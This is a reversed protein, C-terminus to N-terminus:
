RSLGREREHDQGMAMVKGLQVAQRVFQVASKSVMPLMRQALQAAMEPGKGIQAAMLRSAAERVHGQVNLPRVAGRAIELERAAGRAGAVARHLDGVRPRAAHAVDARRFTDALARAHERAADYSTGRVIGFFRPAPAGRLAGFRDPAERIARETQEAGFRARHAAVARVARAPDAFVQAADDRFRRAADRGARRLDALRAPERAARAAEDALRGVARERQQHADVERLLAAAQKLAGREHVAHAHAYDYAADAAHASRAPDAGPRLAGFRHPEDRLAAAARDAGRREAASLFARRAAAPDAYLARVERSFDRAAETASRPRTRPVPSPAPAPRAPTVAPAPAREVHPGREPARPQMGTPIPRPAPEVTRADLTRGAVAQRARYDTYSGLRRELRFRSAAADVESAKVERTGDTVVMGRGKMRLSLGREALGRELEGWSRAGAFHPAAETRVRQLFEGDGRVRQVPAREMRDRAHEPVPAHKGPVIRLGLEAEQARLSSEIRRYDWSNSWARRSEPHVTNVMVHVHPHQRDRHAVILVQHEHLGLDRLTRDAVRRMTERNVPDAPDFSISFHYVPKRVRESDRATAAMLRSATEPDRTPLNRSEIWDVRDPQLADARGRELYAALGKFGTGLKYAKGIM